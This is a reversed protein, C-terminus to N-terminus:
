HSHAAAALVPAGSVGDTTTEATALNANTGSQAAATRQQEQTNWQQWGAADHVTLAGKMRYHGLGCLEACGIAYDGPTTAEFWAQIEMGPVADQKLRLQPLFFSHIVDESRLTIRVPVDAPVHLQNRRVFDDATGLQNDAGPYTVNWEFQKATVNLELGPEPFHRPDKIQLWLGRSIVGIFVVILATAATWIIEMRSNGHTYHASRGKRGRYRVLFVLLLIEVAFFVVITIWSILHFLSDIQGGFTSVNPPLRWFQDM